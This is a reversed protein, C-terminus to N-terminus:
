ANYERHRISLAKVTKLLEDTDFPKVFIKNAGAELADCRIVDGNGSLLLIPISPHLQRTRRILDLGSVKPMMLDTILIDPQMSEIIEMARHGDDATTVNYGESELLFKLLTRTDDDDEVLVIKREEM